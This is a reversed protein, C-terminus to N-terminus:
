CRFVFARAGFFNLFMAVFSGLALGLLASLQSGGFTAIWGAFVIYNTAAGAIQVSLYRGLQSLPPAHQTSAFTWIRNSSWTVLVAVPFSILRAVLPDVGAGILLWLLGADVIFGLGGVAGFRMIQRALDSM